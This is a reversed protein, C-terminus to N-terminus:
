ITMVGRLRVSHLQKEEVHIKDGCLTATSISFFLFKLYLKFVQIPDSTLDENLFRWSHKDLRYTLTYFGAFLLLTALYSQALFFSNVAHHIVQKALRGTALILIILNAVQLVFM